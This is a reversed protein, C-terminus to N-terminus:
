GRRGSGVGRLRHGGGGRMAQFEINRSKIPGSRITPDELDVLEDLIVRSRFVFAEGYCRKVHLTACQSTELPHGTLTLEGGLWVEKLSQLRAECRGLVFIGSTCQEFM